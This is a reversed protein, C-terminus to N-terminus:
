FKKNEIDPGAAAAASCADPLHQQLLNSVPVLWDLVLRYSVQLNKQNFDNIKSM